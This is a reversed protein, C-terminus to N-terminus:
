RIRCGFFRFGDFIWTLFRETEVNMDDFGMGCYLRFVSIGNEFRFPLVSAQRKDKLGVEKNKIKGEWSPSLMKERGFINNYVVRTISMTLTPELGNM